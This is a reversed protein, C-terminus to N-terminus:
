IGALAKLTEVAAMAKKDKELEAQRKMLEKKLEPDKTTNPDKKIDQLAKLKAKLDKDDKTDTAYEIQMDGEGRVPKDYSPDDAKSLDDVDEEDLNYKKMIANITSFMKATIPSTGTKNSIFDEHDDGDWSTDLEDTPYGKMKNFAEVENEEFADATIGSDLKARIWGQALDDGNTGKYQNFKEFWDQVEIQGQKMAGEQVADMPIMVEEYKQMIREIFDKASEIKDEGYDKEVATLVATEGKPFKGTERDFMTLIFETMPLKPKEAKPNGDMKSLAGDPGIKVDMPGDMDDHKEAFQGMMKEFAYEIDDTTPIDVSESESREAVTDKDGEGLLDEPGLEVAKTAESVLKYIYPFVDKLEENFQRITLQDIWDGAVDEPVEQLDTKVFNRFAETYYGKRQLRMVSDKVLDIRENVIDMYGLLGEAMVGSRAMYTKFKRLKNLEESLGLVHKGFDDYQNGGEAVHRAMARAGNLHKYPYKFREGDKNEIYIAGIKQTRNESVSETHKIVIRASDIDQYSLRSTGYLKSETMTNDGTNKALFKYDRRNLNSKQIDRVDFNLLRKRAFTRLEKLFDYWHKKTAPQDNDFLADSYMVSIKDDDLSVSVKSDKNYEFEYFRSESPVNTVQGQENGITMRKFRGRLKSFLEEGIKDLDKM